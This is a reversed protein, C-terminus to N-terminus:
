RSGALRAAPTAGVTAEVEWGAEARTAAGMGEAEPMAAATEAAMEAAMTAATAVAAAASGAAM